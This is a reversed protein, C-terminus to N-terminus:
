DKKEARPFGGLPDDLLELYEAEAKQRITEMEFGFSSATKVFEERCGPKRNAPDGVFMLVRVIMEAVHEPLIRIAGNNAKSYERVFERLRLYAADSLHARLFADFAGGRDWLGAIEHRTQSWDLAIRKNSRNSKRKKRKMM